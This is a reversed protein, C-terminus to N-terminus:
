KRDHGAGALPLVGYCQEFEPTPGRPVALARELDGQRRGVESELLREAVALDDDRAREYLVRPSDGPDGQWRAEVGEVLATSARWDRRLHYALQLTLQAEDPFRQLGERLYAIADAGKKEPLRALEQYAVIRLWGPADSRAVDELAATAESTKGTRGLNVARRLEVERDGPRAAALRRLHKLAASYGGYKEELFAAWYRAAPNGPDLKLAQLFVDRAWLGLQYTGQSFLSDALRILLLAAPGRATGPDGAREVYLDLLSLSRDRNPGALWPRGHQSQDISVALYLYSLPLLAEPELKALSDLTHDEVKQLCGLGPLQRPRGEGPRALGAAIAGSPPGRLEAMGEGEGIEPMRDLSGEDIAFGTKAEVVWQQWDSLDEATASGVAWDALIRRLADEVARSAGLQPDLGGLTEQQWRRLRELAEYTEADRGPAAPSTESPDPTAPEQSGAPWPLALAALLLLPLHRIV